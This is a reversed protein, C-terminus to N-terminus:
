QLTKAFYAAAKKLFENEEKLKKNENHLRVLEDLDSSRELKKKADKLWNHLRWAPIKLEEAVSAVTRGPSGCLRVANEQFEKSYRVSKSKRTM